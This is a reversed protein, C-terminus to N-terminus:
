PDIHMQDRKHVVSLALSLMPAMAMLSNRRCYEDDVPSMLLAAGFSCLAQLSWAAVQNTSFREAIGLDLKDFLKRISMQSRDM